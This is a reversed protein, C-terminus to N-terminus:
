APRTCIIEPKTIRMAITFGHSYSEQRNVSTCSTTLLEELIVRVVIFVSSGESEINARNNNRLRTKGCMEGIESRKLRKPIPGVWELTSKYDSSIRERSRIWWGEYRARARAFHYVRGVRAFCTCTFVRGRLFALSLRANFVAM